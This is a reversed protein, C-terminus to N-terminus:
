LAEKVLEISMGGMSGSRDVIFIFALKQDGDTTTEEEQLDFPDTTLEITETTTTHKSFSPLFQAMVAIKGPYDKV